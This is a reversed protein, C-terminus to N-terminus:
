QKPAPAITLGSVRGERDFVVRVVAAAKDYAASLEIMKHDRDATQRVETVSRFAGFADTVQKLLEALRGPPLQSRMTPDFRVSALDFRGASFNTLLDRAAAELMPDVSVIPNILVTAVRGEYDFHVRVSAPGKEFTSILEVVPLGGERRQKAESVFRYAGLKADIEAKMEKLMSLPVVVRLSDDFDKAALEFRGAAFNELLERAVSEFPSRVTVRPSAAFLATVILAAIAKV